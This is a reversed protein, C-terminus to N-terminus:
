EIVKMYKELCEKQCTEVLLGNAWIGYNLSSNENELAIHYLNVKDYPKDYLSAREDLCAPLRLKSDTIYIQGLMEVIDKVEKYKLKDVLASHGGTIILDKTMVNNNELKYVYLNDTNELDHSYTHVTQGIVDIAVNGHAETKIMMGKKLTEIPRYIDDGCLIESGELFCIVVPITPVSIVSNGTFNNTFQQTGSPYNHYRGQVSFTCNDGQSLNLLNITPSFITLNSSACGTNNITTGNVVVNTWNEGSTQLTINYTSVANNNLDTSSIIWWDISRTSGFPAANSSWKISITDSINSSTVNVSVVTRGSM